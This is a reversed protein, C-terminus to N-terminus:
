AKLIGLEKTLSRSLGNVQLFLTGLNQLKGIESPLEGVEFRIPRSINGIEPPIGGDTENEISSIGMIENEISSIGM